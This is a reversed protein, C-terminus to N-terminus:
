LHQGVVTPIERHVGSRGIVVHKRLMGLDDFDSTPRM